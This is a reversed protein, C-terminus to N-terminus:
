NRRLVEQKCVPIYVLSLNRKLYLMYLDFIRLGRDPYMRAFLLIDLAGDYDLKYSNVRDCPLDM